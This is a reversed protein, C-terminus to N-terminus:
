DVRTIPALGLADLERLMHKNERWGPWIEDPTAGHKDRLFLLASVLQEKDNAREMFANILWPHGRKAQRCAEHLPTPLRKHPKLDLNTGDFSPIAGYMLLAHIARRVVREERGVMARAACAGLPTQRASDKNKVNAKAGRQLTWLVGKDDPTGTTFLHLLTMGKDDRQTHDFGGVLDAMLRLMERDELAKMARFADMLAQHRGPGDTCLALLVYVHKDGFEPLGAYGKSKVYFTTLREQKADAVAPVGAAM